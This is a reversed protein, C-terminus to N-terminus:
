GRSPCSARGQRSIPQWLRVTKAATRDKSQASKWSTRIVFCKSLVNSDKKFNLPNGRTRNHQSPPCNIRPPLSIFCTTWFCRPPVRVPCRTLPMEPTSRPYCGDFSVTEVKQAYRWFSKPHKSPKKAMETKHTNVLSFHTRRGVPHFAM